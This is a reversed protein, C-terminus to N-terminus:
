LVAVIRGSMTVHAMPVRHTLGYFYLKVNLKDGCKKESEDHIFIFVVIFGCPLSPTIGVIAVHM